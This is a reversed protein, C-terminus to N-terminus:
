PADGGRCAQLLLSAPHRVEVAWNASRAAAELRLLCGPNGSVVVAPGAARLRDIKRATVEATTGPQRAFAIGGAGCCLGAEEHRVSELGPIRELLEDTARHRGLVHELHCPPDHAVRLPLPAPQRVLGARALFDLPEAWGEEPRVEVLHALCGAAPVIAAAFPGASRFAAATPAALRDGAARDGAHAHLAGCCAPQDPVVVEFGQDRFLEVVDALVGGLLEAQVCGLHLAVRGRRRGRAPLVSGPRPVFRRPRRPVAAALASLRGAPRRRTLREFLGLLGSRRIGRLLLGIAALRRRYPLLHRLLFRLPPPTRGERNEAYLAGYRVRSPCAAECARCQLCRALAPEAAAAALRGEGVARMLFIRGRPSDTEAGTVRYTPCVQLCLGCHMCDLLDPVTM